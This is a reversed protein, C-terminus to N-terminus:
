RSSCESLRSLRLSPLVPLAFHAFSRAWFLVIFCVRIFIFVISIQFIDIRNGNTVIRHLSVAGIWLRPPSKFSFTARVSNLNPQHGKPVTVSFALWEFWREWTCFCWADSGRFHTGCSVVHHLRFFGNRSNWVDSVVRASRESDAGDLMSSRVTSFTAPFFCVFPFHKIYPIESQIWLNM